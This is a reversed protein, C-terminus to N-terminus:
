TKIVIRISTVDFGVPALIRNVLIHMLTASGYHAEAYMDEDIKVPRRMKRSDDSLFVRQQGALRGRLDMLTQHHQPNQNCRSLVVTFVERWSKAAVREDDFIVAVPKRGVFLYTKTTIPVIRESM